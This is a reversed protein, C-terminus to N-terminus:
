KKLPPQYGPAALFTVLPKGDDTNWIKVEGDFSGTALRKTPEHFAVCLAWDQHGSYVRIQNRSKRDFQRVNKDNSVAFLNGGASLLKGVEGGFGGIEGTKAADALKWQQIKNDAGASFAEAGDAHFAVGKLPQNHGAFTVSLEGTKADFVKATKDRSASALKTGDANWSVATVWDSHSTIALQETGSAVDYVRLVGDASASALRDGAPSFAADYVVDAASHLVKSLEGSAPDFFRVEGLRGPAGSAVALTKGDPSYALAYIRQGTNKIRRMLQGDAPNWVTVENYGGVLLQTGDPSFAVATIPQTNPYAEPASPHVPPPVISALPAKPDPGDFAAGEELWQKLIAVQEAPVPDGDLPMREKVDGTSIRRFAESGELIKPAFGAVGSDGEKMVREYSDIRYGGEAKKPGHCALCNNLLIPAVDKKFSIPDAAAASALASLVLALPFFLLRTNM